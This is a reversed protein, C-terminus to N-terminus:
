CFAREEETLDLGRVMEAYFKPELNGVAVHGEKCAYVSYFSM